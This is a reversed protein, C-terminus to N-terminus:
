AIWFPKAAEDHVELVSIGMDDLEATTLSALQKRQSARDHWLKITQLAGHFTERVSIVEHSASSHLIATQATM